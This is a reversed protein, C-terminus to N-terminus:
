DKSVFPDVFVEDIRYSAPAFLSSSKPTFRFRIGATLNLNLSGLVAGLNLYTASPAWATSGAESGLNGTLPLLGLLTQYVIDVRLSGSSAGTETLFYRLTPDTLGVCTSPSTASSGPPLYLSYGGSGRVMFSENGPVIKAGGSLIWGEAGAEFDGGHVLRYAHGDNWQAFPKETVGDCFVFDGASGARAGFGALMAVTITALVFRVAASRKM